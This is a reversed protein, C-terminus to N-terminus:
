TKLDQLFEVKVGHILSLRLDCPLLKVDLTDLTLSSGEAAVQVNAKGSGGGTGTDKPHQLAGAISADVDWM